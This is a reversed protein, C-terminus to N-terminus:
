ITFFSNFTTGDVVSGLCPPHKTKNPVPVLYLKLVGRVMLELSGGSTGYLVRYLVCESTTQSRTQSRSRMM